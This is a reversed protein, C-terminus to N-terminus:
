YASFQQQYAVYVAELFQDSTIGAPITELHVIARTQRALKLSLESRAHREMFQRRQLYERIIAFDDPLLQSLDTLHPLEDALQQAEPSLSVAKRSEPRSEQVVLTGAIWDGLRKERRGLFILFAGLFLFDDVPRLLARLTAQASGIPRGDDRIVRIKAFRKGPTQGQWIVEFLVFYGVFLAFSILLTIAALWLPITAYNVQLQALYNLLQSSLIGALIWFGILGIALVHYDILLALARNGIGALLFEIEVSEPTVLQIRKFLRM